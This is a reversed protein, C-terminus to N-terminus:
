KPKKKRFGFKRRTKPLKNDVIEIENNFLIQEIIKEKCNFQLALEKITLGIFYRDIVSKQKEIPFLFQSKSNKTDIIEKELQQLITIIQPLITPNIKLQYNTDENEISQTIKIFKKKGKSQIVDFLFFSKNQKIPVTKIIKEM